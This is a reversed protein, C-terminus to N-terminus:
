SKGKSVIRKILKKVKRKVNKASELAYVRSPTKICSAVVKGERVAKLIGDVTAEEADILNIGNGVFDPEHADSGATIPKKLELAKKEAKENAGPLYYRSNFAEIADAMPLADEEVLGVAHRFVHYPHPIIVTCHDKKAESITEAATKGPAYEKITGLIVVHGSKTSVEIGPIIIIGPNEITLAKKAGATTDHDTIAIAQFGLNKAKEIVEEVSSHGDPSASTHIHLDCKIQPM